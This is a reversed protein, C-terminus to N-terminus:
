ATKVLDLGCAEAQALMGNAPNSARVYAYLAAELRYAHDCTDAKLGLARLERMFSNTTEQLLENLAGAKDFVGPQSLEALAQFRQLRLVDQNDILM